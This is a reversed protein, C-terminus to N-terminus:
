PKAMKCDPAYAYNRDVGTVCWEVGSGLTFAGQQEAVFWYVQRTVGDNTAVTAGCFRRPIFSRGWSRYGLEHPAYFGSALKLGSNWYERERAAFSSAISGHVRTDECVPLVGSYPRNYAPDKASSAVAGDYVYAGSSRYPADAALAPAAIALAAALAPAVIKIPTM